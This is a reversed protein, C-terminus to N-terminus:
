QVTLERRMVERCGIGGGAAPLADRWERYLGGM